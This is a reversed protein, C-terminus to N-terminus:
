FLSICEASDDSTLNKCLLVGASPCDFNNPLLVLPSLMLPHSGGFVAEDLNHICVLAFDDGMFEVNIDLINIASCDYGDTGTHGFCAKSRVLLDNNSERGAYVLMGAGFARKKRSIYMYKKLELSDINIVFPLWPGVM